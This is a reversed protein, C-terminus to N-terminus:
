LICYLLSLNNLPAYLYYLRSAPLGCLLITHACINYQLSLSLIIYRLTRVWGCSHVSVSVSVSLFENLSLSCYYVCSLPCWVSVSMYYLPSLYIGGVGCVSLSLPLCIYYLTRADTKFSLTCNVSSLSLDFSLFQCCSFPLLLLSLSLLQPSSLCEMKWKYALPPSSLREDTSATTTTTATPRRVLM